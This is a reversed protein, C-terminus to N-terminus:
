SSRAPLYSYGHRHPILNKRFRKSWVLLCPCGHRQQEHERMDPSEYNLNWWLSSVDLTWVRVCVPQSVCISVCMWLCSRASVCARLFKSLCMCVCQCVNLFLCVCVCVCESITLSVCVCVCVCLYVCVGQLVPKPRVWVKTSSSFRIGSIM